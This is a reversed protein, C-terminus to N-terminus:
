SKGVLEYKMGVHSCKPCSFSNRKRDLNKWIGFYFLLLELVLVYVNMSYVAYLSLCILFWLLYINDEVQLPVWSLSKCKCYKCSEGKLSLRTSEGGVLGCPHMYSECCHYCLVPAGRFLRKEKKLEEMNLGTVSEAYSFAGPSPCFCFEKSDSVVFLSADSIRFSFKCYQCSIKCVSSM